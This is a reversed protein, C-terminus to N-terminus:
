TQGFRVFLKDITQLIENLEQEKSIFMDINGETRAKKIEDDEAYGSLIVRICRHEKVHKIVDLFEGDNLNPFRSRMGRYIESNKDIKEPDTKKLLSLFALFSSGEEGPMRQDSIIMDVKRMSPETAWGLAGETGAAMVVYYGRDSLKEYLM